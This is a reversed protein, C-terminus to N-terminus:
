IINHLESVPPNFSAIKGDPGILVSGYGQDLGFDHRILSAESGRVNFQAKEDLGDLRVIEEFLVPQSDFNVAVHQIKTPNATEFWATYANCDARSQADSSSWFTLLVYKGESKELKFEETSSKLAISPSADGIELEGDTKNYASSALLMGTLLAITSVLKKM